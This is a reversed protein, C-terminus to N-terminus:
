DERRRRGLDSRAALSALLRRATGVDVTPAPRSPELAPGRATAEPPATRSDRRQRRVILVSAEEADGHEPLYTEPDIRPRSRASPPGGAEARSLEPRTKAPGGRTRRPRRAVIEVSAEEGAEDGSRDDARAPDHRAGPEIGRRRGERALADVAAELDAVRDRSPRGRQLREVEPVKSSTRRAALPANVTTSPSPGPEPRSETASGASGPAPAPSAAPRPAPVPPRATTNPATPLPQPATRPSPPPLTPPTTSPDNVAAVAGVTPAPEASAEVSTVRSETADDADPEPKPSAAPEAESEAIIARPETSGAADPPAAEDASATADPSKPEEPAVPAEPLVTVLEPADTTAPPLERPEAVELRLADPDVALAADPLGFYLDDSATPHVSSAAPPEAANDAIPAAPFASSAIACALPEPEAPGTPVDEADASAKAAVRPEAPPAQAELLWDAAPLGFPGLDLQGPTGDIAKDVVDDPAVAAHVPLKAAAEENPASLPDAAESPPTSGHTEAPGASAPELLLEAVPLGFALLEADIESSDVAAEVHATSSSPELTPRPAAIAVIPGSGAEPPPAAREAQSAFETSEIQRPTGTTDPDVALEAAPLGFAAV